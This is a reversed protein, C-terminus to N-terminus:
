SGPEDNTLTVVSMLVEKAERDVYESLRAKLEDAVGDPILRGACNEFLRM